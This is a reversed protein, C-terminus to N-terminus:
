YGLVFYFCNLIILYRKLHYIVNYNSWSCVWKVIFISVELWKSSISVCELIRIVSCENNNSECLYFIVSYKYFKCVNKFLASNHANKEYLIKTYTNKRRWLYSFIKVYLIKSQTRNICGLSHWNQQTLVFM